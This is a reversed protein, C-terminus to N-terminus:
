TGLMYLRRAHPYHKKIYDIDALSTTYMNDEDAKIGLKTLKSLDDEVSKTPNNTLFAHRIGLSEMSRLFDLTYPFLTGRMYITGDMDLALLRIKSLRIKMKDSLVSIYNNTM